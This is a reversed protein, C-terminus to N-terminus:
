RQESELEARNCGTTDQQGSFRSGAKGGHSKPLERQGGKPWHAFIWRSRSGVPRKGALVAAFPSLSPRGFDTGGIRAAIQWLDTSLQAGGVSRGISPEDLEAVAPGDTPWIELM